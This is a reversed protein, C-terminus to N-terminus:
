AWELEVVNDFLSQLTTKSTDDPQAAVTSSGVAKLWSEIVRRSDYPGTADDHEEMIAGPTTDQVMELETPDVLMSPPAMIETAREEWARVQLLQVATTDEDDSPWLTVDAAAVVAGHLRLALAALPEFQAEMYKWQLVANDPFPLADVDGEDMWMWQCFQEVVVRDPDPAVVREYLSHAANALSPIAFPHSPSVHGLLRRLLRAHPAGLAAGLVCLLQTSPGIAAWRAQIADRLAPPAVEDDHTVFSTPEAARWLQGFLLFLDGLTCTHTAFAHHMYVLPRLHMEAAALAEWFVFDGFSSCAPPYSSAGCAGAHFTLAGARVQLLSALLPQLSTWLRPDLRPLSAPAGYTLFVSQQFRSLWLHHGQSLSPNTDPLHLAHLCDSARHVTDAFVPDRLLDVLLGHVTSVMCPMVLVSPHSDALHHRHADEDTLCISALPLGTMSQAHDIASDVVQMTSASPPPTLPIAHGAGHVHLVTGHSRMSLGLFSKGAAVRQRLLAIGDATAQTAATTLLPGALQQSSPLTADPHLYHILSAAAPHDIWSPSLPLAATLRVLLAHFEHTNFDASSRPLASRPSSMDSVCKGSHLFAQVFPCADVHKKLNVLINKMTVPARVLTQTIPHDTTGGQTDHFATRCHKCEVWFYTGAKPLDARRDFYEYIDRAAASVGRGRKDVSSTSKSSSPIGTVAGQVDGHKRKKTHALAFPCSEIHKRLNALVNKMATPERVFAKTMHHVIAGDSTDTFAVRCHKCEVWFYTGAKPLDMRREFHDYVDRAAASVGRGRKPPPVTETM